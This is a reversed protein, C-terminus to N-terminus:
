FEQDVDPLLESIGPIDSCQATIKPNAM